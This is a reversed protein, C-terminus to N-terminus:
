LYGGGGGTPATTVSTYAKVRQSVVSDRRRPALPDARSVVTLPRTPLPGTPPPPAAEWMSRRQSLPTSTPPRPRPRVAVSNSRSVGDRQPMTPSASASSPPSSSKYMSSPRISETPFPHRRLPLPKNHEPSVAPSQDSSGMPMRLSPPQPRAVSVSPARSRGVPVVRTATPLAVPVPPFRTWPKQLM